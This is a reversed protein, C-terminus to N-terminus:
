PAVVKVLGDIKAARRRLDADFTAFCDARSAHALHMADAFDLGLAYGALAKAIAEPNDTEVNELGLLATLGAYIQPPALSYVSRLVWETELAVTATLLIEGRQMFKRAEGVQKDDDNVILRVVINTDIAMM